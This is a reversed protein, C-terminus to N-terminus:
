RLLEQVQVELQGANLRFLRYSQSRDIRDGMKMEKMPGLLELEVYKLPDSNTYIEASSSQDPFDGSPERISSVELLWSENAWILREADAGIKSSYNPARECSLVGNKIELGAPLKESQKNYGSQFISKPRLPMFVKKPEKMQTIIWIGTQVNSGKVKLFTTKVQMENKAPNLTIRRESKIGYHPDIESELIISEGDIRAKVPMSDFAQPPPWGRGTIKEWDGQPSPWSKDGGFNGWETSNPDPKKGDLERNNWFPGDEDGAFRFQMLRGIAPVVVAEVKGNSIILAENWQHYPAQSITIAAESQFSLFTAFLCGISFKQIM